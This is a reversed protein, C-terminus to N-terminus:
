WNGKRLQKAEREIVGLHEQSVSWTDNDIEELQIAGRRNLSYIVGPEVGFRNVLTHKDIPM